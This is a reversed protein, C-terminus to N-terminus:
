EAKLTRTAYAWRLFEPLERAWSAQNHEGGPVLLFAIDARTPGNAHDPNISYGLQRLGKLTGHADSSSQWGEILDRADDIADNM